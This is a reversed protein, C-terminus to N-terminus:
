WFFLVVVSLMTMFTFAVASSLAIVLRQPVIVPDPLEHYRIFGRMREKVNDRERGKVIRYCFNKTRMWCVSLSSTLAPNYIWGTSLLRIRVSKQFVHLRYELSSLSLIDWVSLSKYPDSVTDQNEEKVRAAMLSEAVYMVEPPAVKDTEQPNNMRSVSHRPITIYEEEEEEEEEEDLRDRKRGGSVTGGRTSKLKMTQIVDSVTRVSRNEFRESPPVRSAALRIQYLFLLIFSFRVFYKVSTILLYLYFSFLIIFLVLKMIVAPDFRKIAITWNLVKERISSFLSLFFRTPASRNNSNIWAIFLYSRGLIAILLFIVILPVVISREGGVGFGLIFFSFITSTFMRRSRRMCCGIRTRFLFSLPELACGYSLYLFYQLAVEESSANPYRFTFSYLYFIVFMPFVRCRRFIDNEATSLSTLILPVDQEYEFDENEKEREKEYITAPENGTSYMPNLQQHVPPPTSSNYPSPAYPPPPGGSHVVPSPSPHSLSLSSTSSSTVGGYLPTNNVSGAPPGPSPRSSPNGDNFPAFATDWQTAPPQPSLSHTHTLSLAEVSLVDDKPLSKKDKFIYEECRERIYKNEVNTFYLLLITATSFAAYMWFIVDGGKKLSYKDGGLFLDELRNKDFLNVKYAFVGYAASALSAQMQVRWVLAKWFSAGNHSYYKNWFKLEPNNRTAEELERREKWIEDDKKKRCSRFFGKSRSFIAPSFLSSIRWGTIWVPGFGIVIHEFSTYSLGSAIFLSASVSLLVIWWVSFIFSGWIYRAAAGFYKAGSRSLLSKKDEEEEGEEEEKGKVNREEKEEDDMGKEERESEKMNEEEENKTLLPAALGGISPTHTTLTEGTWVKEKKREREREEESGEVATAEPEKEWDFSAECMNFFIRFRQRSASLLATFFNNLFLILIYSLILLSSILVFSIVPEREEEIKPDRGDPADPFASSFDVFTIFSLPIAIINKSFEPYLKLLIAFVMIIFAYMSGGLAKYVSKFSNQIQEELSIDGVSSATANFFFLPMLIVLMIGIFFWFAGNSSYDFFGNPYSPQDLYFVTRESAVGYCYIVMGYWGTSGSRIRTNIAMTSTTYHQPTTSSFRFSPRVFGPTQIYQVPYQDVGSEDVPIVEIACIDKFYPPLQRTTSLDNVWNIDGAFNPPRSSYQFIALNLAMPFNSDISIENRNYFPIGVDVYNVIEFYSSRAFTTYTENGYRVDVAYVMFYLGSAAQYPSTDIVANENSVVHFCAESKNLSVYKNSHTRTHLDPEENREIRENVLTSTIKNEASYPAYQIFSVGQGRSLIRKSIVFQRLRDEARSYMEEKELDNSYLEMALSGLEWMVAGATGAESAFQARVIQAEKILDDANTCNLCTEVYETINGRYNMDELEQETIYGSFYDAYDDDGFIEEFFTKDSAKILVPHVIFDNRSPNGFPDLCEVNVTAKLRTQELEESEALNSSPALMRLPSIDDVIQINCAMPIQDPYTSASVTVTFTDETSQFQGSFPVICECSVSLSVDLSDVFGGQKTIFSFSSFIAFGSIDTRATTGKLNFQSLSQQTKIICDCGDVGLGDENIVRVGFTPRIVVDPQSTIHKSFNPIEVRNPIKNPVSVRLFYEGISVQYSLVFMIIFVLFTIYRSVVRDSVLDLFWFSGKKRFRHGGRGCFWCCVSILAAFFLVIVSIVVSDELCFWGSEYLCGM